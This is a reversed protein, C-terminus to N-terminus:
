VSNFSHILRFFDCRMLADNIDNYCEQIKRADETEILKTGYTSVCVTIKRPLDHEINNDILVANNDVEWLIFSGICDVSIDKQDPFYKNDKSAQKKDNCYYYAIGNDSILFTSNRLLEMINSCGDSSPPCIWRWYNNSDLEMASVVINDSPINYTNSIYEKLEELKHIPKSDIQQKVM